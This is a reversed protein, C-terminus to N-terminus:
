KKMEKEIAAGFEFLLENALDLLQEINGREIEDNEIWDARITAIHALLMDIANKLENTM